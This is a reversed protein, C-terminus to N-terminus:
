PAIGLWEDWATASAFKMQAYYSADAGFVSSPSFDISLGYSGDSNANHGEWVIAAAVAARVNVSANVVSASMGPEAELKLCLDVCERGCQPRLTPLRISPLGRNTRVFVEQM